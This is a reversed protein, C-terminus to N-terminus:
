VLSLSTDLNLATSTLSAPTIAHVGTRAIPEITSPTMDGVVHLWAAAPAHAVVWRIDDLHMDSLLLADAEAALAQRADDLTRAEVQIALAAPLQSRAREIAAGIGGALQVHTATILVADARDSLWTFGGGCQIAYSEFTQPATELDLLRARTRSIAQVHRYTHTAIGSFRSILALAARQGAVVSAAPGSILAVEAPLDTVTAGDWALPEFSLTPDITEFVAAAADLGCLVGPQHVVVRAECTRDPPILAVDLEYGARPQTRLTHEALRHLRAPDIPAVLTM